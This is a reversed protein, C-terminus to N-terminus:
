QGCLKNAALVAQRVHDTGAMGLDYAQEALVVSQLARICNDSKDTLRSGQSTSPGQQGQEEYDICGTLLVTALTLSSTKFSRTM